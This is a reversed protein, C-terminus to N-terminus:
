NILFVAADLVAKIKIPNNAAKTNLRLRAPLVPEGSSNLESSNQNPKVENAYWILNSPNIIRNIKGNITPRKIADLYPMFCASEKM